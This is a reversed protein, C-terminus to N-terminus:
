ERNGIPRAMVNSSATRVSDRATAHAYAYRMIQDAATEVSFMRELLNRSNRGMRARLESDNALKLAAACLSHDDGNLVCIGAQEKTLIEFLDNGSNLSALVPKGGYVYGLLKGPVNQTKLRKDLSLLGVDFESLMALYERHGVAALIQINKAATESLTKRLRPAESGEGVLLFHIHTYHALHAALRVINDLDQAVGLNGGYFFVVKEQLGLERRYSTVPLDPETPVTWNYLVELPYKRSPFETAFYAANAPSQIAIRDAVEYQEIEKKRFYRWLFGRRLLGADVAWQPFIDRQVLYASCGWMAKLRKVLAGFFISPSYYITLNCPNAKLFKRGSRWLTSSLRIERIARLPKSAGKIRASKVRVVRMGDRLSTELDDLITQCPAMLIVDHGRRTLEVGLDHMQKASSKSTPFYCDVLLLIRLRSM